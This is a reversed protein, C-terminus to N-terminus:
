HGPADESCLSPMQQPGGPIPSLGLSRVNSHSNVLGAILFDLWPNLSMQLALTAEQKQKLLRDRRQTNM